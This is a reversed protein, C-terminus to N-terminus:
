RCHYINNGVSSVYWARRRHPQSSDTKCCSCHSGGNSYFYGNCSTSAVMPSQPCSALYCLEVSMSSLGWFADIDFNPKCWANATFSANVSTDLASIPMPRGGLRKGQVEFDSLDKGASKWAILKSQVEDIEQMTFTQVDGDKVAPVVRNQKQAQLMEVKVAVSEREEQTEIHSTRCATGDQAM